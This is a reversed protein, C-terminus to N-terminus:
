DDGIPENNAANSKLAEEDFNKLKETNFCYARIAPLTAYATGSGLRKHKVGLL